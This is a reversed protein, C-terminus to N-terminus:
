GKLDLIIDEIETTNSASLGLWQLAAPLTTFVNINIPLKSKQITDFRLINTVQEPTDTLVASRREWNFSAKFWNLFQDYSNASTVFVVDRYDDLVNFGTSFKEDNLIAKKLTIIDNENVEGSYCGIILRREPLIRYKCRNNRKTSMLIHNRRPQEAKKM